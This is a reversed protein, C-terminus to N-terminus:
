RGKRALRAGHYADACSRNCFCEVFSSEDERVLRDYFGDADHEVFRGCNPCREDHKTNM